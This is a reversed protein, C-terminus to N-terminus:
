AAREANYHRELIFRTHETLNLRLPTDVWAFEKVTDDPNLRPMGMLQKFDCTFTTYRFTENDPSPFEGCHLYHVAGRVHIQLEEDIERRLAEIFREGKELKGGPFFWYGRKFVLLVRNKHEVFLGAVERM